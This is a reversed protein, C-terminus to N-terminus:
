KRQNKRYYTGECITEAPGKMWVHDREDWTIYLDGGALHVQVEEGKNSLGNLVSAVVAACAGTGCAQTVGSGREWVRFHLEDGSVQQVFEVNVSEPFREHKEVKPGLTMLPADEIDDVFFIAHPNGMSVVTMEHNESDVEIKEGVIPGEQSVGTVPIQEAQFRPKGMDVTVLLVSGADDPHVTAQVIGGLTEITMVKKSILNYDYAYKAVCRLGNGCNKAESGDKNFIRMQLDAVDSPGMLILGDSGIGTYIDSVEVALLSLEKEELKVDFCNIFIYQNGLGHM